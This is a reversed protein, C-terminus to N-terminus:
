GPWDVPTEAPHNLALRATRGTREEFRRAFDALADPTFAERPIGCIQIAQDIQEPTGEVEVLVDCEPYWEIRVTAGEILYCEIFRDIAQRVRYGLAELIPVASGRGITCELERRAKLGEPSLYTPGKWGLIEEEAGDMGEFRRIRLVERRQHLQEEHDYRRDLLRGRQFPATGGHYGQLRQQLLAPDPVVAKLELEIM